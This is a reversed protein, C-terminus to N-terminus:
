CSLGNTHACMTVGQNLSIGSYIARFTVFEAITEASSLSYPVQWYCATGGMFAPCATALDLRHYGLSPAASDNSSVPPLNNVTSTCPPQGISDACSDPATGAPQDLELRLTWAGAGSQWDKSTTFDIEWGWKASSAGGVRGTQVTYNPTGTDPTIAAITTGDFSVARICLQAWQAQGSETWSVNARTWTATRDRCAVESSYTTTFTQAAVEGSLLASALAAALALKKFMKM